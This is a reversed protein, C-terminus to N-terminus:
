DLRLPEGIAARSLADSMSLRSPPHFAACQCVSSLYATDNSSIFGIGGLAEVAKGAVDRIADQAAYRANLAGILSRDNVTEHTLHLAVRELLLTATELRVVLESLVSVPSRRRQFVRDVLATAAGLYSSTILIEFWIFGITQLLDLAGDDGINAPVTLQDDVFVDVLRVEDSEAGALIPTSWFPHISIGQTQAPILAFLTSSGTGDRTPVSMSLSLLDMSKSISCPKKSGNVLVGGDTRKALVSPSVISQGPRGEAFASSVLMQQSAIGELVAWEIGAAQLSDALTFLTAVSFHHMATAVALSPSKSGIARMISVADLPSAGLGSYRTPIVLAPGNFKCFLEIGPNGPEELEQLTLESLADLLGPLHKETTEYAAEVTELTM